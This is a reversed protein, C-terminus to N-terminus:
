GFMQFEGTPEFASVYHKIEATDSLPSGLISVVDFRAAHETLRHWKLFGIGTKTLHQQKVQDVAEAPDGARDTSRTKVEVFVITDLDVAILDIEGFKDEYSRFLIIYGLQLLYREAALEGRQGLSNKADNAKSLRMLPSNLIVSWSFGRVRQFFIAKWHKFSFPVNPKLLDFSLNFPLNMALNYRKAM